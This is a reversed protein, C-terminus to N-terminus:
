SLASFNLAFVSSCDVGPRMSRVSFKSHMQGRLDGGTLSASIMPTSVCL